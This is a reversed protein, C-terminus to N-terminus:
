PKQVSRDPLNNTPPVGPPSTKSHFLSESFFFCSWWTNSRLIFVQTRMVDMLGSSWIRRQQQSSPPIQFHSKNRRYHSYYPVLFPDHDGSRDMWPDGLALEYLKAVAHKLPLHPFRSDERSKELADSTIFLCGACVLELCTTKKRTKPYCLFVTLLV